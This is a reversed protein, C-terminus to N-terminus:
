GAISFMTLTTTGDQRTTDGSYGHVHTTLQAQAASSFWVIAAHECAKYAGRYCTVTPWTTASSGVEVPLRPGSSLFV